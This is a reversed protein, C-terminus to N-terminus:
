YLGSGGTAVPPRPATGVSAEGGGGAVPVGGDLVAPVGTPETGPKFAELIAGRAGPAARMGTDHDVWVLRIGPPIRFDVIPRDKLAEGMFLKFIPAAVSSGTDHAGLTRPQDFGVFVGVALNPSFGVFWTDVNDNTTGTKGALPRGLEAIRRGTGRQVVGELMSVVQFASAPDVLQARTDPIAPPPGGNWAPEGCGECPRDDHKWLTRGHRDVVRDILSPEIKKGGNVLMGYAATMQLLTTEGAGLSYSLHPQMGEVVGFREAYDVVKEMGITQALRVTMLNRSHEIGIRMPTPGYFKNTYNAPKWKGLGAGQDIVFPADLIQTNPAYGSDLAALYVFPKFASGPQRKAQTARNFESMKADYGGSMALVRGTHPDLAVIAGGVDPIQRLAYSGPAVEKGDEDVTVPEVPVVDGPKLVEDVSRPAPGFRQDELWTRAWKMGAYPISALSGDAFGIRAEKGDSKLVLALRWAGLGKPPEVKALADGWGPQVPVTAVPGRWGHRRDYEELGQRLANEAIVQLHPDISTRVSLGGEYLATEGFRRLLDRRVEEAFYDASAVDSATNGHSVLPENVATDAEAQSVFGNRRMQEIVWNRREVAAKHRRVPHYNNPAKPLAALFAAEGITLASLPKDFYNLAAAAVGYSGYGLYIENLYLELIRDKSLSREIRFALIAEKAKRDLSVENTLLFNKAVQQTITSAGVPRRGTGYNRINIVIASALSVFDVGPHEYFNKDEAALFAKIVRKPIAEIPVFVRENRAYEALLRGDGAHVRTVVPPEYDALYDYDPLGKGFHYFGYLVAGAGAIALIFVTALLGLLWRM